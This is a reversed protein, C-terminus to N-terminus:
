SRGGVERVSPATQGPPLKAPRLHFVLIHNSGLKTRLALRYDRRLANLLVARARANQDSYPKGLIITSPRLAAIRAIEEVQGVGVAGEERQRALHSAFPYRTPLCAGTERYLAAYPAYVFLCGGPEVAAAIGAFEARSGHNRASVAIVAQGAVFALGVLFYALRRGISGRGLTAAAAAAAPVLVPLVYHTLYTGFIIVGLLAAAFWAMVFRYAVLHPPEIRKWAAVACAALPALILLILGLRKVSSLFSTEGRELVSYFNAYMFADLHGVGSYYAAAAVTPALAALVWIPGLLWILRPSIRYAAYLLALGFFIGEFVASYKIQLSIGVLLMAASGAWALAAASPYRGQAARLTILGAACMPLNYFLPSQGGGAAGVNLAALYLFAAALAGFRSSYDSAIRMVLFATAAAFLTGGIQYDLESGTGVWHFGAFLIFLGVPKRDWIDVYPLAGDLMRAGVLSYFQEDSYLIPNGFIQLRTAFAAALIM